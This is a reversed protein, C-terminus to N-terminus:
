SGGGDKDKGDGDERGDGGGADKGGKDKGSGTKVLVAKEIYDLKPYEKELWANGKKQMEQQLKTLAEGYGSYLKRLVEMGKVVRGFPAFGMSDLRSNDGLNIFLQTSRSNPVSTKAFTLTGPKNSGKVPEDPITRGAWATSVKPNGHIGFQVVFGPVVRFLAMDDFYGIRVLNYFRKAGRPSKSTDVELLVDGKTTELKVRYTEPPKKTAKSPDLLAPHPRGKKGPEKEAPRTEQAALAPLFLAIAALVLPSRISRTM